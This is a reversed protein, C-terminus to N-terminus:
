GNAGVESKSTEYINGIVEVERATIPDLGWVQKDHICLGYCWGNWRVECIFDAYSNEGIFNAVRRKVKDGDFIEKGNKDKLGTFQMPIIDYYLRNIISWISQDSRVRDGQEDIFSFEGDNDPYAMIGNNSDWARFKLEKEMYKNKLTM